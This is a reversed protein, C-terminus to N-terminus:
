SASPPTKPAITEISEKGYRRDRFPESTGTDVPSRIGLKPFLLEAVRYSEELHPYGSLIFTECGTEQYERMRAAVQDPDGVLATGAGGRVLGVGAWLNPGVVLKSRDGGTLEAMRRQGESQIRAFNKQAAAITEDDVYQILSEAAAWAEKETERVIAHLRIGFRLERGVDAARKRMDAIKEAVKEPPEGWTLYVDVHRAAVDHAKPSSGGFYLAPYPKQMAPAVSLQGGVCQVHQGEFQVKEGRCLARWVQLFEDTLDYRADHDLLVGDGALEESDGGAVVNILLRGGSFRDLTAVMRAAQAPTTFGPRVAVLFKLRQTRPVLLSAVIWADECGRGTPLLAGTYGLRDIAEAIQQLYGLSIQRAGIPTGLYRVDGFTPFFWFIEM